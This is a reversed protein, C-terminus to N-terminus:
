DYRIEIQGGSSSSDVINPPFAGHRTWNLKPSLGMTQVTIGTFITRDTAPYMDRPGADSELAVWCSTLEPLRDVFIKAGNVNIFECMYDFLGKKADFDTLTMRGTLLQGEWVPISQSYFIPEPPVTNLSPVCWSAVSWGDGGTEGM